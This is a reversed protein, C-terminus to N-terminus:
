TYKLVEEITTVGEFVLRLGDQRLSHMGEALANQRLSLTSPRLHILDRLRDSVPMFEFLGQRGRYGTGNCQACGTGHLFPKDKIEDPDLGLLNIKTLDPKYPTRCGNCIQRVLRQALVGQLSAAILFPQVGIDMLRTIAGPADNTHLTSLVVHGTLATQVAMQATELDRIEGVMITDPDQRLFSRLAKAFDFGIQQNVPTQLIGEITYEIPDEITLIKTEPVNIERLLSYLTTTKGSGTPGTVVFIGHPQRVLMRIKETIAQPMRLQNLDLHIVSKDLVRLVVSEGWRTPLTSVRLDVGHGAATMAIRGDQPIRREAIDMGALVKIRSIIPLALNYPPPEMTHLAGDVRYRIRFQEKHPEFHIDSVKDQIAKQLILNVFRIIPSEHTLTNLTTESLEKKTTRQAMSFTELDTMVSKITTGEEEGYHIGLLDRVSQPDCVIIRVEKNLSFTLDNIIASNFPDEAILEISKENAKIPVVAYKRALSPKIAALVHEDIVKPTVPLYDYGLSRAIRELLNERNILLSDMLVEAFPRGSTTHTKYAADIKRQDLAKDQSLIAYLTTSHEEFM